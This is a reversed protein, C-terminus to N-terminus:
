DLHDSRILTFTKILLQPAQYVLTLGYTDRSQSIRKTGVFRLLDGTIEVVGTNPNVKIAVAQFSTSVHEKQIRREDELLKTKLSGYIEPLAHRLLIERKYAASSPSVDLFLSVFFLGMEEFYASSAKTRSVWFSRSVEPPVIVIHEARLLLVLAQMLNLSLLTGVLVYLVNRQHVLRMRRLSFLKQKM